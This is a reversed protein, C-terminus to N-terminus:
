LLRACARRESLRIQAGPADHVLSVRVPPGGHGGHISSWERTLAPLFSRGDLNKAAGQAGAV